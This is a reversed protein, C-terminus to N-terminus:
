GFPNYEAIAAEFAVDIPGVLNRATEQLEVPVKGIVAESFAASAKRQMKLNVLVTPSVILLKDFKPKANVTSTLVIQVDTVLAQTAGAVSLTELFDLPASEEAVETGSKIEKLLNSSDILLHISDGLGLLGAQFNVVTNNLKASSASIKQIAEVIAQGDAQVTTVSLLLFYALQLRM